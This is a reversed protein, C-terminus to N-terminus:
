LTTFFKAQGLATTRFWLSVGEFRNTGREVCGRRSGEGRNRALQYQPQSLTPRAGRLKEPSREEVVQVEAV